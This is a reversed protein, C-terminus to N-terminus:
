IQGCLYQIISVTLIQLEQHEPPLIIQLITKDLVIALQQVMGLGSCCIVNIHLYLMLNQGKLHLLLRSHIARYYLYIYNYDQLYLFCNVQSCNINMFSCVNVWKAVFVWDLELDVNESQNLFREVENITSASTVIDYKVIGTNTLRIDDWFPALM